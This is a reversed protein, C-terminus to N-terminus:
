EFVDYNVLPAEESVALFATPDGLNDIVRQPVVNTLKLQSFEASNVATSQFLKGAKSLNPSM